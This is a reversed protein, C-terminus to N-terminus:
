TSLPLSFPRANLSVSNLPYFSDIWGDVIESGESGIKRTDFRFQFRSIIARVTIYLRITWTLGYIVYISAYRPIYYANYKYVLRLRLRLRNFLPGRPFPFFVLTSLRLTRLRISTCLTCLLPWVLSCRPSYGLKAM